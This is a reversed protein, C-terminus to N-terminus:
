YQGTYVGHEFMAWPDWGEDEEIEDPHDHAARVRISLYYHAEDGHKALVHPKTPLVRNGPLEQELIRAGMGETEWGMCALQELADDIAEAPNDGMGTACTEYETFAVGCGQFYSEHEIGHDVLEFAAIAQQTM